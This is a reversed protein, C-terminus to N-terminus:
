KSFHYFLFSFIGVILEFLILNHNKINMFDKIGHLLNIGVIGYVIGHFPRLNDWWIIDGDTEIGTKRLGFYYITFFGVSIFLLIISLINRLFIMDNSESLIFVLYSIFLRTPICGFTFYLFRPGIGFM